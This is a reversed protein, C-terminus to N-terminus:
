PRRARGLIHPITPIVAAPKFGFRRCEEIEFGADAIAEATHRAPHCGGGVLPWFTLEAFKLFGAMPQSRAQVHEYFRLEGGVRLARRLEALAAAQDPVSCLVLSVVAADFSEDDVPLAGAVGDVVRVAVPAGVAASSAAARLTPEPEVGVVEEVTDPYHQFNLGNGCGLELVRGSLSSLLERRYEAQGRDEAEDSGRIYLRAFIPHAKFREGSAGMPWTHRLFACM